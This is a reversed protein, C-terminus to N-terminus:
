KKLFGKGKCLSCTSAQSKQTEPIYKRTYTYGFYTDWQSWYGGTTNTTITRGCGDCQPCTSYQNNISCTKLVGPELDTRFTSGSSKVYSLVQCKKEVCDYGVLIINFDGNTNEGAYNLISGLPFALQKVEKECAAQLREKEFPSLNPSNLTIPAPAAYPTLYKISKAISDKTLNYVYINSGPVDAYDRNTPIALVSPGQMMSWDYSQRYPLKSKIKALNFSGSSLIKSNKLEFVSVKEAVENLLYIKDNIFCTKGFYTETVEKPNFPGATKKVESFLSDPYKFPYISGTNLDVMSLEPGKSYDKRSVALFYRDGMQISSTYTDDIRPHIVTGTNLDYIAVKDEKKIDYYQKYCVLKDCSNNLYCQIGGGYKPSIFNKDDDYIVENGPLIQKEDTGTIGDTLSLGTIKVPYGRKFKVNSTLLKGASTIALSYNSEFYRASLNINNFPPDNYGKTVPTHAVYTEWEYTIKKTRGNDNMRKWYTYGPSNMVLYNFDPSFVAPKRQTEMQPNITQWFDKNMCEMFTDKRVNWFWSYEGSKVSMLVARNQNLYLDTSIMEQAHAAASLCVCICTKILRQKM